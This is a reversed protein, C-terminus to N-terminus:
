AGPPPNHAPARLSGSRSPQPQRPTSRLAAHALVMGIFARFDVVFRQLFQATSADTVDGDDTLLGPTVHIYAEPTNM